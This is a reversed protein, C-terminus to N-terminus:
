QASKWAELEEKLFDAVDDCLDSIRIGGTDINKNRNEKACQRLAAIAQNVNNRTIKM